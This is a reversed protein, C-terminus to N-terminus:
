PRSNSCQPRSSLSIAGAVSVPIILRRHGLQPNPNLTDLYTSLTQLKRKTSQQSCTAYDGMNEEVSRSDLIKNYYQSGFSLCYYATAM